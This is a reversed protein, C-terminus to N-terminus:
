IGFRLNTGLVVHEIYVM